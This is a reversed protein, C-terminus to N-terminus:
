FHNLTHSVPHPYVYTTRPTTAAELIALLTWADEHRCLRTASRPLRLRYRVLRFLILFNSGEIVVRDSAGALVGPVKAHSNADGEATERGSDQARIRRSRNDSQCIWCATRNRFALHSNANMFPCGIIVQKILTSAERIVDRTVDQVERLKGRLQDSDRDTGLLDTM